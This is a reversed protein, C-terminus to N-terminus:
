KGINNIQATCCGILILNLFPSRPQSNLWITRTGAHITSITATISLKVQQVRTIAVRGIEITTENQEKKPYICIHTYM